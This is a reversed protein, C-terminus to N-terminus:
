YNLYRKQFKGMLNAFTANGCNMGRMVFGELDMKLITNQPKKLHVQLHNIEEISKTDEKPSLIINVYNKIGHRKAYAYTLLYNRYIQQYGNEILQATLMEDFIKDKQILENKVENNTSSNGGLLDTYKVEIGIIGKKHNEDEVLLFVDFASKDNTYDIIPVPIFEMDIFTIKDLWNIEEFLINGIRSAEESEFLLMKRLDSFLNFTMPMSSLTNNFLRYEEVTLNKNVQKELIKQKACEFANKSIFNSGSLEGDVISNGYRNKSNAFPGFGFDEQLVEARYKSQLLRCKRTFVNDSSSQPGIDM